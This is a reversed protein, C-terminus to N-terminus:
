KQKKSKSLDAIQHFIKDVFGTNENSRADMDSHLDAVLRAIENELRSELKDTRSDIYKNIEKSVANLRDIEQDIRRDILENRNNLSRELDEITETLYEIGNNLERVKRSTMFMNYVGVLALVSLVGLVFAITQEM